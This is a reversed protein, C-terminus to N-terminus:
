SLVGTIARGYSWPRGDGAVWITGITTIVARPFGGLRRTLRVLEDDDRLTLPPTMTVNVEEQLARRIPNYATIAGDRRLVDIRRQVSKLSRGLRAAIHSPVRNERIMQVIITDEHPEYRAQFGPGHEEVPLATM